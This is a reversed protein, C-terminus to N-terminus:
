DALPLNLETRLDAPDMGPAPETTYVEWFGAPLPTLGQERAWNNLREWSKHLGQYDGHHVLRAVRGAPLERVTAREVEAAQEVVFGVELDFTSSPPTLYRAFAAGVPTITGAIAAAGLAEFAGDIFHPLETPPVATGTIVVTVASEHTVLEPEPQM